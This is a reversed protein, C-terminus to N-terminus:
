GPIIASVLDSLPGAENHRNVWRARYYAIQGAQAGAFRVIYPSKTVVELLTMGHEDAPAAGGVQCYLKCGKVKAPKAKSYPSAADKIEIIHELRQGTDLQLQPSTAPVAARTYARGPIHLGLTTRLDNTTAPDAQIQRILPRLRAVLATRAANKLTVDTRTVTAPNTTAAYATQWAAVGNALAALTLPKLGMGLGNAALYAAFPLLWHHFDVDKRPIPDSHM